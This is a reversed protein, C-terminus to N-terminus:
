PRTRRAAKVTALHWERCSACRYARFPGHGHIKTVEAGAQLAVSKSRYAIKGSECARPDVWPSGGRGGHKDINVPQHRM